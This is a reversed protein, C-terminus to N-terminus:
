HRLRNFRVDAKPRSSLTLLMLTSLMFGTKYFLESVVGSNYIREHVAVSLLCCNHSICQTGLWLDSQLKSILGCLSGKINWTLCLLEDAGQMDYNANYNSYKHLSETM